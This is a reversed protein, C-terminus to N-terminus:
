GSAETTVPVSTALRLREPPSLRSSDAPTSRGLPQGSPEVAPLFRYDKFVKIFNDFGVFAGKKSFALYVAYISPFVGFVLLFLTYLSVFVLGIRGQSREM